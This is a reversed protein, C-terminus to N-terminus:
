SQRKSKRAAHNEDEFLMAPRRQGGIRHALDGLLDALQRRRAAPMAAVADLIKDQAAQPAKRLITRAAPTLSLEVRRADDPARTRVVLGQRELKQVVVSVSSQHTLTRQALEGVSLPENAAALKTLVFLQAASVGVDREAARSSIRLTQVILRVSDLVARAESDEGGAKTRAISPKGRKM